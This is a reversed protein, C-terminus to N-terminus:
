LERQYDREMEKKMKEMEERYVLNRAAIVARVTENDEFGGPM